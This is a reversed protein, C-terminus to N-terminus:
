GDAYTPESMLIPAADRLVAEAAATYKRGAQHLVLGPLDLIPAARGKTVQILVRKAAAGVEPALPMVAVGDAAPDLLGIIEALRDFRHVLTMTGGDRTRGLGFGIWDSLRADGEVTATARAPEAPAQGAGAKMYPPNAFVHDFGRGAVPKPPALLDGGFFRVRGGLANLAANRAALEALDQQLELGVVEVGPVRAALCLSAAGGGSGVELVAEGAQAPVAAALLVADIAVRFGAEPQLCVIRGGLLRTETLRAM